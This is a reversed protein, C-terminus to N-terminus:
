AARSPVVDITSGEFAVTGDPRRLTITRRAPGARGAAAVVVRKSLRKALGSAAGISATM